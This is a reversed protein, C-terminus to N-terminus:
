RFSWISYGILMYDYQNELENVQDLLMKKHVLTMAQSANIGQGSPILFINKRVEFVINKLLKEGKFVHEISGKTKSGFIFILIVWELTM